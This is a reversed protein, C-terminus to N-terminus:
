SRVKKYNEIWIWRKSEKDFIIEHTHEDGNTETMRFPLGEENLRSERQYLYNHVELNRIYENYMMAMFHFRTEWDEIKMYDIPAHNDPDYNLFNIGSGVIFFQSHAVANRIQSLYIKKILAYFKPCITRLPDRIRNRIIDHRSDDKSIQFHWDYSEGLCLKALKLLRELFRNSEWLKLYIVLEIQTGLSHGTEKNTGKISKLHEEQSINRTNAVRYLHYFDYQTMEAYHQFHPGVVFPSYSGTANKISEDYFGNELVLLLDNKHTQNQKATKFLESIAESVESHISNLKEVYLM